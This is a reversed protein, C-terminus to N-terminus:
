WKLLRKILKNFLNFRIFRNMLQSNDISKGISEGFVFPTHNVMNHGPGINKM